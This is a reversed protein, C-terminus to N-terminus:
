KSIIKIKGIPEDYYRTFLRVDFNGKETDTWVGNNYVRSKRKMEITVSEGPNLHYTDTGTSVRNYSYESIGFSAFEPYFEINGIDTEINGVNTITAYIPEDDQFIVPSPNVDLRVDHKPLTKKYTIVNESEFDFYYDYGWAFILSQESQPSFLIISPTGTSCYSYIYNEGLSLSNHSIGIENGYIDFVKLKLGEKTTTAKFDFNVYTKEDDISPDARLYTWKFDTILVDDINPVQENEGICGIGLFGVLVIIIVSVCHVSNMVSNSTVM